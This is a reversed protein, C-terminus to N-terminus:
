WNVQSLATHEPDNSTGWVVRDPGVVFSALACARLANSEPGDIGASQGTVFECSTDESCIDYCLGAFEAAANCDVGDTGVQGFSTVVETSVTCGAEFDGASVSGIDGLIPQQYNDLHNSIHSQCWSNFSPKEDSAHAFTIFLVSFTHLRM